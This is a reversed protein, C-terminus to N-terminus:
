KIAFFEFDGTFITSVFGLLADSPYFTVLIEGAGTSSLDTEIRVLEDPLNVLDFRRNGIKLLGEFIKLYSTFPKTNARINLNIISKVKDNSSVSSIGKEVKLGDM